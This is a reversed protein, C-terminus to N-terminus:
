AVGNLVREPNLGWFAEINETSITRAYHRKVVAASNGMYDATLNLNKKLNRFYTAFGHRLGDQIWDGNLVEERIRKERNPLAKLTVFPIDQKTNEKHLKIWEILVPELIIHRANTKGKRVYLENTSFNFDRWQVRAGESPRLGAFVLLAYYGILDKHKEHVYKLLERTQEVSYFDGNFDDRKFKIGVTPNRLLINEDVIYSCFQRIYKLYQRRTNNSIPKKKLVSDIDNRKLDDPKLDGWQWSIFKHYMKIEDKTKQSLTSDELKFTKWNDVLKRISPKASKILEDGLYNVYFEVAEEPTKGHRELRTLLASYKDALALKEPSVEPQKGTQEILKAISRAHNLAEEETTFTKRENMGWKKSRASVQFYPLGTRADNLKYVQPFEKRIRM